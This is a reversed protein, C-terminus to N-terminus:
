GTAIRIEGDKTKTVVVNQNSNLVEKPLLLGSHEHDPAFVITKDNLVDKFNKSNSDTIMEQISQRRIFDTMVAGIVEKEKDLSDIKEKVKSAVKRPLSTLRSHLSQKTLDKLSQKSDNAAERTTTAAPLLDQERLEAAREPYMMMTEEPTQNEVEVSRRKTEMMKSEIGVASKIKQLNFAENAWRRQRSDLEQRATAVLLRKHAMMEALSRVTMDDPVTAVESARQNKPVKKILGQEGRRLASYVPSDGIEPLRFTKEHRHSYGLYNSSLEIDKVYEFSNKQYVTCRNIRYTHKGAKKLNGTGTLHSKNPVLAKCLTSLYTSKIDVRYSRLDMAKAYVKNSIIRPQVIGTDRRREACTAFYQILIKDVTPPRRNAQYYAPSEHSNWGTVDLKNIFAIADIMQQKNFDIGKFPLGSIDCANQYLAELIPQEKFKEDLYMTDMTEPDLVTMLSSFSAQLKRRILNEYRIDGVKLREFVTPRPGTSAYNQLWCQYEYEDSDWTGGGNGTDTALHKELREIEDAYDWPIKDDPDDLIEVPEPFWDEDIKETDMDWMGHPDEAKPTTTPIICDSDEYWFPGDVTDGGWFEQLCDNFEETLMNELMGRHYPTYSFNYKSLLEVFSFSFMNDPTKVPELEVLANLLINWEKCLYPTCRIDEVYNTYYKFGVGEKYGMDPSSLGGRVQVNFPYDFINLAEFLDAKFSLNILQSFAAESVIEEYEKSYQDYDLYYYGLLSDKKLNSTKFIFEVAWDVPSFVNAPIPPGVLEVKNIPVLFLDHPKPPGMRSPSERVEVKKAM